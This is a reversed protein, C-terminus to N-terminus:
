QNILLSLDLARASHTLAGVSIYDVGTEAIGRVTELTVGGSAELEVQGEVSHVIAQIESNNMNDLLIRDVNLRLAEHVQAINTVEVEIQATLDEKELKERIVNVAKTLSGAAEIHNEKIMVMDYLGMRHNVGGGQRVASKELARYGPTTKRTDLIKARTGKTQEVFLATLSAIGSLRQLFNLATREGILISSLRGRIDLIKSAKEVKVGDQVIQVCTLEPDVEEFVQKAVFLGAIVGKSKALITAAGQSTPDILLNTTIDGRTGLDEELGLKILQYIEKKSPLAIDM